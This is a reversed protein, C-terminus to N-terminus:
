VVRRYTCTPIDSMSGWCEWVALYGNGGAYYCNSVLQEGCQPCVGRVWEPSPRDTKSDFSQRVDIREAPTEILTTTM